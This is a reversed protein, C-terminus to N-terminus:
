RGNDGNQESGATGQSYGPAARKIQAIVIARRRELLAQPYEAKHEAEALRELLIVVIDRELRRTNRLPTFPPNM